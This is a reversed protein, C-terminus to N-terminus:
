VYLSCLLYGAAACAALTSSVASPSGWSGSLATPRCSQVWCGLSQRAFPICGRRRCWGEKSSTGFLSCSPDVQQCCTPGSVPYVPFFCSHNGFVVFSAPCLKSGVPIWRIYVLCCPYQFCRVVVLLHSSSVLAYRCGVLVLMSLLSRFHSVVQSVM